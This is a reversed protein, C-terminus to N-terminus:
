VPAQLMGAAYDLAKDRLKVAANHTASATMVTARSAHAGIGFDIRDTQGHVVRIRQYDVGLASNKQHPVGIHAAPMQRPSADLRALREDGRECALEGLFAIDYERRRRSQMSHEEIRPYGAAIM